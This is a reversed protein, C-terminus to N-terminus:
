PPPFAHVLLQLGLNEMARTGVVARVGARHVIMHAVALEHVHAALLVMGERTAAQAHLELIKVIM